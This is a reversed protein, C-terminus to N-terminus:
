SSAKVDMIKSARPDTVGLAYRGSYYPLYDGGEREVNSLTPKEREIVALGRRPNTIIVRDAAVNEDVLFTYGALRDPTGDQLSPQWISVKTADNVINRLDAATASNALIVAGSRYRIPLSAILNVIDAQAFGSSSATESKLVDEYQDFDGGATHAKAEIADVLDAQLKEPLLNTFSDLEDQLLQAGVDAVDGRDLTPQYEYDTVNLIVKKRDGQTDSTGGKVGIVTGTYYSYRPQDSMTTRFFVLNLLPTALFPQGDLFIDQQKLDSDLSKLEIEGGSQMLATLATWDRSKKEVKGPTHNQAMANLKREIESMQSGFGKVVGDLSKVEVGSKKLEALDAQLGKLASDLSKLEAVSGEAIKLRDGISALGGKIENLAAAMEGAADKYEVKRARPISLITAALVAMQVHYNNSKM